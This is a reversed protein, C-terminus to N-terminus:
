GSNSPSIIRAVSEIKALAERGKSTISYGRPAKDSYSVFELELLRKLRPSITKTDGISKEGRRGAAIAEQTMVCPSTSLLELISLEFRDLQPIGKHLVIDQQRIEHEGNGTAIGQLAGVMEQQAMAELMGWDVTELQQVIKQRIEEWHAGIKPKRSKITPYTGQKLEVSLRAVAVPGGAAREANLCIRFVLEKAISIIADHATSYSENEHKTIGEGKIKYRWAWVVDSNGSTIEDIRGLKGIIKERDNGHGVVGPLNIEAKSCVWALHQALRQIAESAECFRSADENTPDLLIPSIGNSIVAM